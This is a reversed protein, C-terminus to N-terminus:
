ASSARRDSEPFGNGCGPFPLNRIYRWSTAVYGPREDYRSAYDPDNDLLWRHLKRVKFTAVNPYLHHVHHFHFDFQSIFFREVPGAAMYFRRKKEAESNAGGPVVHESFSRLLEFFATLTSLPLVYFFVYVFPSSLLSIGILMVLQVMFLAILDIRTMRAPILPLQRAEASKNGGKLLFGRVAGLLNQGLGILRGGLLHFFFFGVIKRGPPRDTVDHFVRNPDDDNGVNAHHNWHMKRGLYFQTGLFASLIVGVRENTKINRFLLNHMAEHQLIYCAQGRAGVLIFALLYAWWRDVHWAVIGSLAVVSANLAILFWSYGDQREKFESPITITRTSM